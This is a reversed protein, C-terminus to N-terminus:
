SPPLPPVQPYPPPPAMGPLVVDTVDRGMGTGINATRYRALRVLYLRVRPVSLTNLQVSSPAVPPDALRCVFFLFWVGLGFLTWVVTVFLLLHM